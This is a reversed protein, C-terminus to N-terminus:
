SFFPFLFESLANQDFLMRRYVYRVCANFAVTLKRLSYSDLAFYVCDCYTFFPIVLAFVLRMRVLGALAGYVKRCITSVHEGWNLDYSFTVGLNKARFVYPIFDDGLFLAPLPGLLHNRYEPLVM